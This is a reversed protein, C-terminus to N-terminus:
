TDCVDKQSALDRAFRDSRLSMKSVKNVTTRPLSEIFFVYRPRKYGALDRRCHDIIAAQSLNHGPLLVVYAVVTEGWQEDPVGVVAVEHVGDLEAIVQEIEAPYINEAGSIIMDKQRGSIWIFGEDDQRALDGTHWWAGPRYAKGDPPNAYGNCVFPSRVLLEGTAGTPLPNENEDAIRVEVSFAPKGVSGIKRERDETALFTTIPGAETSGYTNVFGATPFQKYIEHLLPVGIAEGGTLLLRLSSRDYSDLDPLSLLRRWMTPYITVLTAREAAITRMLVTPDFGTTAGVILTGGRLMLPIALDMLPGVHFLPGFVVTVDNVVIDFDIIKAVSCSLTTGHTWIAGKPRGTTGSSYVMLQPEERGIAIDPENAAHAQLLQEYEEGGEIEDTLQDRVLISNPPFVGRAKLDAMAPALSTGLFLFKPQCDALLHGVERPAMRFNMPVLVAGLKATAFFIEIFQHCNNLLAAVRDARRSAAPRSPTPSGARARTSSLILRDRLATFWRPRGPIVTLKFPSSCDSCLIM